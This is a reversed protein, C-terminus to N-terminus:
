KLNMVKLMNNSFDNYSNHVKLLLENSAKLETIYKDNLDQITKIYSKNLEQVHKYLFIITTGFALAIIILIGTITADNTSVIKRLEEVTQLSIM